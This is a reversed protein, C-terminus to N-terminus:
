LMVENTSNSYHNIWNSHCSFNEDKVALETKLPVKETIEIIVEKSTIIAQYIKNCTEAICSFM